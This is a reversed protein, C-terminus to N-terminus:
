PGGPLHRKALRCVMTYAPDFVNGLDYQVCQGLLISASRWDLGYDAELWALMETTAHQVCQDLPRANGVTFISNEDEGRPWGIQKGKFVHVTVQVDMSIEIGTGVIEGDGQLAHGDGLHLLAGEVFVPFYATVGECFGRYDMNGGHEASTATSIAQEGGPAVGFCGLMPALPLVIEGLKTEPSILTATGADLDIGWEAGQREPLEKVYWPDVVNPAIVTGSYGRARNPELRDLHVALTDGPAAGEIHFPGTQPNGRPTVQEGAADHGGADVTTTMITDGDAVRLVPDHAGIVTHYQAPEFRHVTMEGGRWATSYPHNFDFRHCAETLVM